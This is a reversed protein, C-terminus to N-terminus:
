RRRRSVALANIVKAKSTIAYAGPVYLLLVNASVYNRCCYHDYCLTVLTLGEPCDLRPISLQYIKPYSAKTVM